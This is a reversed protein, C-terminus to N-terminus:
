LGYVEIVIILHLPPTLILKEGDMANPLAGLWEMYNPSVFRLDTWVANILTGSITYPKPPAM